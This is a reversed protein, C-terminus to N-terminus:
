FIFGLGVEIRDGEYEGSTMPERNWRFQYNAKFVINKRTNFNFGLSLATLDSQSRPQSILSEHITNHTNLREIRAFIPLKFENRKLLFNDVANEKKKNFGLLPLIDYSVETYFGYVSEGLVQPGNEQTATLHFLQDTNNVAGYTGLAMVSLNKHTHRVYASTLFSNARVAQTSNNFTVEEGGGLQTWFGSLSIETNKLGSYVFKSNLVASNFNFRLAHDRGRRLWTAGNLNQADLGQYVSATWKLNNSINGYTMIGLDIWQSPILLREVEPRNVTYFLIPEDNNNIYGIGPQHSGVRVNFHPNILFDVFLEPLYEFEGEESGDNLYEAFIEAYLVMWDVPKYAAYLVFRQLNTNYLELDNSERNKPGLYHNYNTEGFGSITFKSDSFYIKSAAVPLGSQQEYTLTDLVKKEKPTGNDSEKQALFSASFFCIFILSFIKKTHM